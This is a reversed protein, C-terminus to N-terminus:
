FDPTARRLPALSYGITSAGPSSWRLCSPSLDRMGSPALPGLPRCETAVDTLAHNSAIVLALVSPAASNTRFTDSM